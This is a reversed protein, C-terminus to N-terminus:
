LNDCPIHSENDNCIRILVRGFNEIYGQQIAVGLTLAKPLAQYICGEAANNNATREVILEVQTSDSAKGPNSGTNSCVIIIHQM